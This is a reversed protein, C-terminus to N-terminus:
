AQYMMDSGDFVSDPPVDGGRQVYGALPRHRPVYGAVVGEGNPSLYQSLYPINANHILTEVPATLGGALIAAAAGASLFQQAIFGVGLATAVQVALGTNGGKPLNMLDPVARTAAKGILVQAAMTTGRTLMKVVDLRRAPNRRYARRPAARRPAARRPAARAAARRPAARRKAPNKRRAGARKRFQGKKPGSKHRPPLRRAM